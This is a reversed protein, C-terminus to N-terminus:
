VWWHYKKNMINIKEKLEEEPILHLMYDLLFERLFELENMEKHYRDFDVIVKDKDEM